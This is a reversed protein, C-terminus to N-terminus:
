RSLESSTADSSVALGIYVNSAMNITTSSGIQVWNTGDSSAYGSFTNGSRVAKVWYPLGGSITPASTSGGTSTRYFFKIPPNQNSQYAPFANTSGASLTERIMVGAQAYTTGQVSVVRAVITGDGPLPQYAFNFSDATSWIYQGSGKVTFTGNSYNASGAVGVSGIDSDSWGSPLATVTFSLSNASTGNVTVSFPGSTANAPVIAVITSDSWNAVVSATGNLSVSNIGQTAGFGTGTIAVATGVAGSAPSISTINPVQATTRGACALSFLLAAMLTRVHVRMLYEELLDASCFLL